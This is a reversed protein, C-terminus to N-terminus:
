WIMVLLILREELESALVVRKAQAVTSFDPPTKGVKLVAQSNELYISDNLFRLELYLEYKRNATVLGLENIKSEYSNSLSSNLERAKELSILGPNQPNVALGRPDEILFAAIRNALFNVNESESQFPVFLGTISQFLFLFALSFIIIGAIFDLSIQACSDLRKIM